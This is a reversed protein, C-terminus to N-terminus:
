VFPRKTNVFVKFRSKLDHYLHLYHTTKVRFRQKGKRKSEILTVLLFLTEHRTIQMFIYSSM